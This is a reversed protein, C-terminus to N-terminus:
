DHPQKFYGRAAVIITSLYHPIAPPHARMSRLIGPDAGLVRRRNPPTAFQVTQTQKGIECDRMELVIECQGPSRVHINRKM